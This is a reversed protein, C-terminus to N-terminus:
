VGEREIKYKFTTTILASNDVAMEDMNKPFMSNNLYFGEQSFDKRSGFGIVTTGYKGAKAIYGQTDRDVPRGEKDGWILYQRLEPGVMEFLYRLRGVVPHTRLISHQKQMYKDWVYLGLLATPVILIVITTAVNIVVGLVDFLLIM